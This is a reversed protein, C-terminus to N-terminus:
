SVARLRPQVGEQSGGRNAGRHRRRRGLGGLLQAEGCQLKHGLRFYIVCNFTKKRGYYHFHASWM